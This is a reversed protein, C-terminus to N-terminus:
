HTVVDTHAVLETGVPLSRPPCLAPLSGQPGPCVSENVAYHGMLHSLFALMVSTLLSEASNGPRNQSQM